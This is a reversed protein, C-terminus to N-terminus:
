AAKVSAQMEIGQQDLADQLALRVFQEPSYGLIEAFLKAKKPSAIKRGREIDCLYQPSIHLKVAFSLQNIEDSRRIAWLLKGLTLKGGCLKELEDIANISM